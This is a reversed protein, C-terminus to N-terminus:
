RKVIGDETWTLHKKRTTEIKKRNSARLEASEYGRSHDLHYVPASYRLHRGRIGANILRAGFEKDLGGYTMSEDFGNVAIVNDRFTSACAGQWNRKVPSMVERIRNLMPGYPMSKPMDSRKVPHWGELKGEADWQVHGAKLYTATDEPSLRILSGTLFRKPNALALHRAVFTPHLLCDDDIFILYDAQSTEIAKNLAACKRFGNDEHWSHRIEVDGSSQRVTEVLEATEPGSGDDALCISTAPSTQELCTQLCLRLYSPKNYTAIIIESRM